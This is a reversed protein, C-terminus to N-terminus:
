LCILVLRVAVAVVRIKKKRKLLLIERIHGSCVRIDLIKWSQWFSNLAFIENSTCKQFFIYEVANKVEWMSFFAFFFVDFFYYTWIFSRM